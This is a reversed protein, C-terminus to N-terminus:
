LGLKKLFSFKSVKPINEEPQKGRYKPKMRESIFRLFIGPYVQWNGTNDKKLFGYRELNDLEKKYRKAEENVSKIDVHQIKLEKDLPVLAVALFIRQTNKDWDEWTMNLQEKVHDYVVRGAQRQREIANKEHEAEYIEWLISAALQLLYPHGGAIDKIFHRDNETFYEDGLHLLKDIEIESLPGLIVEDMFNFYPSGTRNFHQTKQNLQTLTTNGTILLALAGKSLSSRQRLGGFFETSNLVKHHLFADFGDLLLVLRLNAKKIEAILKELAYNGFHNQQANQYAESLSPAIDGMNIYDQFTELAHNWFQAQDCEDSLTAVDLYSFILQPARDGYLNSKLDSDSVYQLLSTKGCRFPGTVSTSEGANVIRGIIRRLESKRGKFQEPPVPNGYRFPNYLPM